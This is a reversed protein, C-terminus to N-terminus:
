QLTVLVLVMGTGEDLRSMAKGLIAGQAHQHDTVKMAHGATDSTTLLDGPRIPAFSADAKVFVRGTLAVNQGGELVGEQRLAIGTNIGGAGSVIGAVRTDYARTSRKLRGPHEDDIVVVSGKELEQEKMPFPEAVDCGGTINLVCTSTTGQVDLKAAPNETGIGVDGATTVAIGSLSSPPGTGPGAVFKFTSGNFRLDARNAGKITLGSEGNPTGFTASGYGGTGGNPTVVVNGSTDVSLCPLGDNVYFNLPHNSRTGLWGGSEDLFTSLRVTGDTHEIGYADFRSRTQVTLRSTPSTTGIGVYGGPSNLLLNKSTGTGYDYAFLFGGTTSSEMFIGAGAGTYPSSNGTVALGGSAVHLAGKPTSTGIGVNGSPDAHLFDSSPVGDLQAASLSHVAYPVLTVAQRPSLLTALEGARNVSIELYRAAGNFVAAGFDLTVAFAGDNVVVSPNTVTAGLQTGSGPDPADFLKFQMEFTGSVPTGSQTLRGQYNLPATQAQLRSAALLLM